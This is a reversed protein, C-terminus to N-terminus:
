TLNNYTLINVLSLGPLASCLSSFAACRIKKKKTGEKKLRRHYGARCLNNGLFVSSTNKITVRYDPTIFLNTKYNNCQCQSMIYLTTRLDNPFITLLHEALACLSSLQGLSLNVVLMDIIYKCNCRMCSMYVSLWEKLHKFLMDFGEWFLSFHVDPPM